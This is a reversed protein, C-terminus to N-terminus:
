TCAMNHIARNRLDSREIRQSSVVGCDQNHLRGNHSHEHRPPIFSRDQYQTGNQAETHDLIAPHDIAPGNSRQISPINAFSAYTSLYYTGGQAFSVKIMTRSAWCIRGHTLDWHSSSLGCTVAAGVMCAINILAQSIILTWFCIKWKKCLGGFPLMYLRLLNSGITSLTNRTFHRRVGM